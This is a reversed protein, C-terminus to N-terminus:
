TALQGGHNGHFSAFRLLSVDSHNAELASVAIVATFNLAAAGIGHIHIELM